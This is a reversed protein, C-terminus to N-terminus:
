SGDQLVAVISCWDPWQEIVRATLYVNGDSLTLLDGGKSSVRIIADVEGNLYIKRMSGQLNLGEIQRLDRNSLDQVQATVTVPAAYSPTPTGDLAITSGTSTRLTAAQMPNVASIPGSVIGHLNM